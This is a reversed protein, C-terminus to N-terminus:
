LIIKNSLSEDILTSLKQEAAEADWNSRSWILEKSTKVRHCNSCRVECKEIEKKIDEIKLGKRVMVSINRSKQGRVHDFDLTELRSEPCDICKSKSLIGYVYIKARLVRIHRSKKENLQRRKKEKDNTHYTNKDKKRKCEKCHSYLYKGSVYFESAPKTEQCLSCQRAQM